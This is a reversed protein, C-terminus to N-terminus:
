LECSPRCTKQWRFARTCRRSTVPCQIGCWAGRLSGSDIGVWALRCIRSCSNWCSDYVPEAIAAARSSIVIIVLVEQSALIHTAMGARDMHGFRGISPRLKSQNSSARAQKQGARFVCNACCIQNKSPRFLEANCARLENRQSRSDKFLVRIAAFPNARPDVNSRLHHYTDWAVCTPLRTWVSSGGPLTLKDGRHLCHKSCFLTAWVVSPVERPDADTRQRIAENSLPRIISSATIEVSADPENVLWCAQIM